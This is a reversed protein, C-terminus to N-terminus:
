EPIFGSVHLCNLKLFLASFWKNHTLQPDAPKVSRCNTIPKSRINNFKNADCIFPFMTCSAWPQLYTHTHTGKPDEYTCLHKLDGAQLPIYCVHCCVCSTFASLWECMFLYFWTFM